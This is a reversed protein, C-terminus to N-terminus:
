QSILARPSGRPTRSPSRPEVLEPRLTRAILQPSDAVNINNREDSCRKQSWLLGSSQWRQSAAAAKKSIFFPAQPYYTGPQNKSYPRTHAVTDLSVITRKLCEDLLKFFKLMKPLLYSPRFQFGNTSTMILTASLPCIAAGQQGFGPAHQV